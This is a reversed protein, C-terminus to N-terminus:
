IVWSFDMFSFNIRYDFADKDIHKDKNINGIIRCQIADPRLFLSSDFNALFSGADLAVSNTEM